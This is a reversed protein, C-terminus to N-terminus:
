VCEGAGVCVCVLDTRQLLLQQAQMKNEQPISKNGPVTGEEERMMIGVRGLVSRPAALVVVLGAPRIQLPYVPASRHVTLGSLNQLLLHFCKEKGRGRHRKASSIILKNSM